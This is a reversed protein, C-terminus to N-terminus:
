LVLNVTILITLACSKVTRDHSVISEKSYCGNGSVNTEMEPLAGMVSSPTMKRQAIKVSHQASRPLSNNRAIDNDCEVSLTVRTSVSNLM